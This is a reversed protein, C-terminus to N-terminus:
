KPGVGLSNSHFHTMQMGRGLIYPVESINSHGKYLKLQLPLTTIARPWAATPVQSFSLPGPGAAVIHYRPYKSPYDVSPPM